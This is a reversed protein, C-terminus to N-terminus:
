RDGYTMALVKLISKWGTTERPPSTRNNHRQRAALYLVKLAPQEKSFHGSRRAAQRFRANM